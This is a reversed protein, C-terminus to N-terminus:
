YQFDEKYGLIKLSVTNKRQYNDKARFDTQAVDFNADFNYFIEPLGQM